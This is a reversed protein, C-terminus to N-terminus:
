RGPWKRKGMACSTKYNHMLIDFTVEATGNDRSILLNMDYFM